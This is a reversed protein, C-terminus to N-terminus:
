YFVFFATQILYPTGWPDVSPGRSKQRYIIGTDARRYISRQHEIAPKLACVIFIRLQRKENRWTRKLGFMLQWSQTADPPWVPSTLNLQTLARIFEWRFFIIPSLWAWNLARYEGPWATVSCSYCSNLKAVTPQVGELSLWFLSRQFVCSHIIFIHIFIVNKNKYM